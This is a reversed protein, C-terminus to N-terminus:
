NKPRRTPTTAPFDGLEASHADRYRTIRRWNRLAFLSVAVLVIGGVAIMVIQFTRFESDQGLLNSAGLFLAGLLALLGQAVQFPMAVSQIAAFRAALRRQDPTLAVAPQASPPVTPATSSLVARRVTKALAADSGFIDRDGGTVPFITTWCAVSAAFCALTLALFVGGVLSHKAGDVLWLAIAGTTGVLLAVVFVLVVRRILRRIERQGLGDIM